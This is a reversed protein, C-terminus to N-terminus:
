PKRKLTMRLLRLRMLASRMVGSVRCFVPDYRVRVSIHERTFDDQGADVLVAGAWILQGSNGRTENKFDRPSSSPHLRKLWYVDVTASEVAASDAVM